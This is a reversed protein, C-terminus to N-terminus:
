LRRYGWFRADGERFRAHEYGAHKLLKAIRSQDSQSWQAKDIGLRELCEAVTVREKLAAWTLLTPEWADPQHRDAVRQALEGILGAEDIWPKAGARYLTVVEAWLQAVDRALAANDIAGCEIPLWRRGGTEDRGWDNHNVSGAFACSRPRDITRRGYPPRYHDVRRTLFAKVKSVESRNMANLEALEIIWQGQLQQAAEKGSVDDLEDTFFGLGLIRLATSKGVGQPGELILATDFQCGPDFVRAVCGVLWAQGMARVLPIDESGLYTTLWTAVRPMGDWTLGSLKDRLPHIRNREAVGLIASAVMDLSAELGAIEQLWVTTRVDHGDTWNGHPGAPCDGVVVIREAFDDWAIAHHWAPDCQLITIINAICKKLDGTKSRLLRKEWVKKPM